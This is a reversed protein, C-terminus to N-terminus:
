MVKSGIKELVMLTRALNKESEISESRSSELFHLKQRSGLTNLLSCKNRLKYYIKDRFSYCIRIFQMDSSLAPLVAYSAAIM